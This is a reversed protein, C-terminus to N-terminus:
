HNSCCFNIEPRLALFGLIMAGAHDRAWWWAQHGKHGWMTPSFLQRWIKTRSRRWAMAHEQWRGCMFVLIFLTAFYYFFFKLKQFFHKTMQSDSPQSFFVLANKLPKNKLCQLGKELKEERSWLLFLCPYLTTLLIWLLNMRDPFCVICLISNESSPTTHSRHPGTPILPGYSNRGTAVERTALLCDWKLSKGEPTQLGEDFIIM